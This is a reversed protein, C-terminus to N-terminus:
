GSRGPTPEGALRLCDGGCGAGFQDMIAVRQPQQHGIPPFTKIKLARWLPPSPNTPM